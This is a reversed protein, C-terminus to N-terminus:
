RPPKWLGPSRQCLGPQKSKVCGSLLERRRERTRPPFILPESLLLPFAAMELSSFFFYAFSCSRLPAVSTGHFAGVRLKCKIGRRKLMWALFGTIPFTCLSSGPRAGPGECTEDSAAGRRAKDRRYEDQWNFLSSPLFKPSSFFKEVESLCRAVPSLTQFSPLLFVSATPFSLVRLCPPVNFSCTANPFHLLSSHSPASFCASRGQLYGCPEDAWLCKRYPREM